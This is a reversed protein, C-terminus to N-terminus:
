RDRPDNGPVLASRLGAGGPGTVVSCLLSGPAVYDDPSWPGSYSWRYTCGAGGCLKQAPAGLEREGRALAGPLPAAASKCAARFEAATCAKRTQRCRVEGRHAAALRIPRVAQAAVLVLAALLWPSAAGYATWVARLAARRSVFLGAAAGALLGAGSSWFLWRLVADGEPRPGEAFTQLGVGGALAVAPVLLVLLRGWPFNSPPDRRALEALLGPDVPGGVSAPEGM